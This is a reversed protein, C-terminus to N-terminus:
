VADDVHEPRNPVTCESELVAVFGDPLDWQSVGDWVVVNARYGEADVIVYREM